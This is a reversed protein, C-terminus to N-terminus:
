ATLYKGIELLAQRDKITLYTDPASLHDELTKKNLLNFQRYETITRATPKDYCQFTKNIQHFYKTSEPFDFSLFNILDERQKPNNIIESYNPVVLKIFLEPHQRLINFDEVKDNDFIHAAKPKEFFFHFIKNNLKDNEYRYFNDALLLYADEEIFSNDVIETLRKVKDSYQVNPIELGYKLFLKTHQSDNIDTHNIIYKKILPSIDRDRDHFHKSRNESIEIIIEELDVPNPYRKLLEKFIFEYDLTHDYHYLPTDQRYYLSVIKRIQEPNAIKVANHIINPKLHNFSDGLEKNADVTRLFMQSALEQQNSSDIKNLREIYEDFKELSPKITLSEQYAKHFLINIDAPASNGGLRGKMEQLSRDGCYNMLTENILPIALIDRGLKEQEPNKWDLFTIAKLINFRDECYIATDKQKEIIIPLVLTSIYEQYKPSKDSILLERESPERSICYKGGFGCDTDLRWLLPHCLNESIIKTLKTQFDKDDQRHYGYIFSATLFDNGGYEYDNKSLIEMLKTELNNDYIKPIIKLNDLKTEGRCSIYLIKNLEEPSFKNVDIQEIVKNALKIEESKGSFKKLTEIIAEPSAKDLADAFDNVIIANTLKISEKQIEPSIETPM